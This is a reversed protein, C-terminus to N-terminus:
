FIDNLFRHVSDKSLELELLGQRFSSSPNKIYTKMILKEISMNTSTMLRGSRQKHIDYIIGYAEFKDKIRKFTLRTPPSTAFQKTFLGAVNKYKQYSKLIFRREEFGLRIGHM